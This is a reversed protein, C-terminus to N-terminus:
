KPRVFPFQAMLERTLLCVGCETGLTEAAIIFDPHEFDTTLEIGRARALAVIHAAVAQEVDQSPIQGAMGRRELRFFFRGSQLQEVLPTVAEKLRDTLDDATFVFVNQVPIVRGIMHSWSKDKARADGISQLLADTDDSRGILVDRFSTLWFHGLQGLASRVTHVHHPGPTVTVILNWEHLM